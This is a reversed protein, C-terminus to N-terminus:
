LDYNNIDPICQTPCPESPRFNSNLQYIGCFQFILADSYRKPNLKIKGGGCDSYTAYEKLFGSNSNVYWFKEDEFKLFIAAHNGTSLSCSSDQSMIIAAGSMLSDKDFCGQADIRDMVGGPLSKGRLWSDLSIVSAFATDSIENPFDSRYADTVTYTCWYRGVPDNGKLAIDFVGQGRNSANCNLLRVGVGMHGPYLTAMAKQTNCTIRCNLDRNGPLNEFDRAKLNNWNKSVPSSYIPKKNDDICKNGTTTVLNYILEQGNAYSSDAGFTWDNLYSVELSTKTFYDVGLFDWISSWFNAFLSIIPVLVMFWIVLLVLCPGFLLFKFFKKIMTGFDVDGFIPKLLTPLVLLVATVVWGAVPIAVGALVRALYAGVRTGSKELFSITYNRINDKLGWLAKKIRRTLSTFSEVLRRYNKNLFNSVTSRFFVTVRGKFYVWPNQAFELLDISVSQGLLQFEKLNKALETKNYYERGLELFAKWGKEKLYKMRDKERLLDYVFGVQAGFLNNEPFYSVLTTELRRKVEEHFKRKIESKLYKTDTILQVAYITNEVYRRAIFQAIIENDISAKKTWRNFDEFFNDVSGGEKHVRHAHDGAEYFDKYLADISKDTDKNGSGSGILYRLALYNRSNLANLIETQKATDTTFLNIKSIFDAKMSAYRPDSAPVRRMGELLSIAQSHTNFREILAETKKLLERESATLVAKGLLHSRLTMLQGAHAELSQIRWNNLATSVDVFKLEQALNKVGREYRARIRDVVVLDGNKFSYSFPERSSGTTSYSYLNSTYKTVLNNYHAHLLTGAPYKDRQATYQSIKLQTDPDGEWIDAFVANGSNFFLHDRKPVVIGTPAAGPILSANLRTMEVDLLGKASSTAPTGAISIPLTEFLNELEAYKAEIQTTISSTGGSVVSIGYSKRLAEIEKKVAKVEPTEDFVRKIEEAKSIYPSSQQTAKTKSQLIDVVAEQFTQGTKLETPAGTTPSVKPRQDKGRFQDMKGIEVELGDNTKTFVVDLLANRLATHDSVKTGLLKKTNKSGPSVIDTFNDILKQVGKKKFYEGGAINELVKREADVQMRDTEFRIENRVYELVLDRVVDLDDAVYKGTTPDLHYGIKARFGPDYTWQYVLKNLVAERLFIKKQDFNSYDDSSRDPVNIGYESLAEIVSEQFIEEVLSIYPSAM